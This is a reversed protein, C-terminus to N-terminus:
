YPVTADLANISSSSIQSCRDLRTCKTNHHGVIIFLLSLGNMDPLCDFCVQLCAIFKRQLLLHQFDGFM